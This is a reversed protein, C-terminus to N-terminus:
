SFAQVCYRVIDSSFSEDGLEYFSSNSKALQEKGKGNSNFASSEQNSRNSGEKTTICLWLTFFCPHLNYGLNLRDHINFSWRFPCWCRQRITTM